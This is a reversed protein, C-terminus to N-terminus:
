DYCSKEEGFPPYYFYMYDYKSTHQPSMTKDDIVVFLTNNHVGSDVLAEIQAFRQHAFRYDYVYTINDNPEALIEKAKRDVHTCYYTLDDEEEHEEEENDILGDNLDKQAQNNKAHGEDEDEDDDYNDDETANYDADDSDDDEVELEMATRKNNTAATTTTGAAAAASSSSSPSPSPCASSSSSSALKAKKQNRLRKQEIARLFNEKFLKQCEPHNCDLPRLDM